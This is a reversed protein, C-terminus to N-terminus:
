AIGLRLPQGALRASLGVLLGRLLFAGGLLELSEELTALGFNLLSASSAAGQRSWLDGQLMEVGVAGAFMLALGALMWRTPERGLARLAPFALVTGLATAGSYPRDM